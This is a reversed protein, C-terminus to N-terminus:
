KVNPLVTIQIQSYASPVAVGQTDGLCISAFAEGESRASRFSGLNAYRTTPMAQAVAPQM